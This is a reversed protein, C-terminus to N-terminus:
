IGRAHHVCGNGWVQFKLGRSIGWGEHAFFSVVIASFILSKPGQCVSVVSIDQAFQLGWFGLVSFLGFSIM